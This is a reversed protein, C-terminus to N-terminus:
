IFSLILCVLDLPSISLELWKHKIDILKAEDLSDLKGGAFSSILAKIGTSSGIAIYILLFYNVSEKGFFKILVYLGVLMVGAMIPFQAADSATLKEINESKKGQIYVKKFEAIM